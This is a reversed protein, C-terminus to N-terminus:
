EGSQSESRKLGLAEYCKCNGSLARYILWAGGILLLPRRIAGVMLAAGLIGTALRETDSINVPSRSNNSSM